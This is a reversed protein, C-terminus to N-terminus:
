PSRPELLARAADRVLGGLDAHMADLSPYRDDRRRALAKLVVRELGPSYPNAPLALPDPAGHVVRSMVETLSGGPFPKRHAFLEYAIAGVSFVDARHDVHAGEVQEPAMYQVTGLMRGSKTMTSAPVRALGFDAIRVEDAATLLVNAPKVDRHVIGHRHAHALGECLQRVVDIAWEVPPGGARIVRELDTGEVYEMAIYPEGADEGVDYVTVINPHRLGGAAQAERLFRERLDPGDAPGLALTKVAVRRDLGPDRALYVTGSSGRGLVSDVQYRGITRV